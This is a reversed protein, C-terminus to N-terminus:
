EIVLREIAFRGDSFWIKALALGQFNSFSIEAKDGNINQSHPAIKTGSSTFLEIREIREQNKTQLIVDGNSPNPFIALHPPSFEETQTGTTCNLLIDVEEDSLQRNWIRIEDIAGTFYGYGNYRAGIILPAINKTTCGIVDYGSRDVERGYDVCDVKSNLIGTHAFKRFVFHHWQNDNFPKGVTIDGIRECGGYEPYGDFRIFETLGHLPSSQNLIRVVFPYGGSMEGPVSGDEYVWKSLVDNEYTQTLNQQGAQKIWLSITFDDEPGFNFAESHPIVIYADVGNFAYAHNELGDHGATLQANVVSGNLFSVSDDNANGDFPLYLVLGENLAQAALNFQVSFLLFILLNKM